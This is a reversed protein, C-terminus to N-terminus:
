PHSPRSIFCKTRERSQEEEPSWEIKSRIRPGPVALRRAMGKGGPLAMAVGVVASVITRGYSLSWDAVCGLSVSLLLRPSSASFISIPANLVLLKATASSRAIGADMARRTSEVVAWQFSVRTPHSSIPYVNGKPRIGHLPPTSPIARIHFRVSAHTILYVGTTGTM